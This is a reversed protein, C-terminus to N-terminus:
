SAIKAACSQIAKEGGKDPTSTVAFWLNLRWMSKLMKLITHAELLIYKFKIHQVDTSLM